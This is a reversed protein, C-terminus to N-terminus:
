TKGRPPTRVLFFLFVQRVAGGRGARIWLCRSPFSPPINQFVWGGEKWGKLSRIMSHVEGYAGRQIFRPNLQPGGGKKKLCLFDVEARKGKIEDDDEDGMGMGSGM